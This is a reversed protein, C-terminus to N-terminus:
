ASLYRKSVVLRGARRNEESILVYPFCRVNEDRDNKRFPNKCEELWSYLLQRFEPWTGAPITQCGLSSTSNIGGSHLNITHMGKDEYPPNGDRIVTFPECQRFALQGKHLGTGFLHIGEKLSAMGKDSGTGKGVRFGNPDTNARYSVIGRPSAVFMADDYIRRDNKGKAGDDLFYGRVALVSVKSQDVGNAALVRRVESEPLIPKSM